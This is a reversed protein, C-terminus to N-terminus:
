EVDTDNAIPNISVDIDELSTLTDNIAIPADNVSNVTISGTAIPSNLIGDNVRYTFEDSGSYNLTPM